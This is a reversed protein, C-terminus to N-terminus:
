IKQGDIYRYHRQIFLMTNDYKEHFEVPAFHRMQSLHFLFPSDFNTCGNQFRYALVTEKIKKRMPIM